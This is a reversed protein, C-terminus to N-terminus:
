APVRRRALLNLGAVIVAAALAYWIAVPQTLFNLKLASDLSYSGNGGFAVAIAAAIYAANLEWGGGTVFFGKWIHVAGIAVLMVLIILVPGIAGGLGLATLLGGGTEGLGAMLAFMRGPRFGLGEFLDGTGAIGPGGFWGFLKQAGHAAIALGLFLRVLLFAIDM